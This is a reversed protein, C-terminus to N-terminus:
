SASMWGVAAVKDCVGGDGWIMVEVVSECITDECKWLVIDLRTLGSYSSIIAWIVRSKLAIVNRLCMGKHSVWPIRSCGKYTENIISLLEKECIISRSIRTHSLTRTRTDSRHGVGSSTQHIERTMKTARGDNLLSFLISIANELM